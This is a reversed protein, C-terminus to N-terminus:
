TKSIRKYRLLLSSRAENLILDLGGDLLEKGTKRFTKGTDSDTFEYVSSPDFGQPKAHM